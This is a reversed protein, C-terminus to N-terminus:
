PACRRPIPTTATTSFPPAPSKSSRAASTAPPSPHRDRRRRCRSRRRSRSRCCPRGHRQVRQARRASATHLAGEREVQRPLARAPRDLDETASLIQPDACPGSGFYVVRGPFDRGFQSAYTDDCNLFAVGNAPLAAVLEFKARAIGAQGEAFNEIHATGVNTISAGTPRPSAPWRPSKARRPEHGNRRRRNRARAQPAATALAPRLRQESQRAVQPRQIKRRAGRRRSGQHHNQRGLRHHRRRAPGVPPARARGASCPSHASRRRHAASPRARCRAAHGRTRALGRAAIAGREFAAAVFDHGDLREGRVAFFLDGPAATRSDISYGTAVLAGANPVSAPAELVAGAGIAAEALTLNM